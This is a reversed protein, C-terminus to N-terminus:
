WLVLVNSWDHYCALWLVLAFYLKIIFSYLSYNLMWWALLTLLAILSFRTYRKEIYLSITLKSNLMLKPLLESMNSHFSYIRENFSAPPVKEKNIKKYTIFRTLYTLTILFLSLFINWHIIITSPIINHWNHFYSAHKRIIVVLYWTLLLLVFAQSFFIVVTQMNICTVFM